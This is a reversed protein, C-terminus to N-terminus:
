RRKETCGQRRGLRLPSQALLPDQRLKNFATESEQGVRELDAKSKAEDTGGQQADFQEQLRPLGRRKASEPRLM